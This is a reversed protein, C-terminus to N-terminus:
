PKSENFTDCAQQIGFKACAEKYQADGLKKHDNVWDKAESWSRLEPGHSFSTCGCSPDYGLNGGQVVFGVPCNCISCKHHEVFVINAQTAASKVQEATVM